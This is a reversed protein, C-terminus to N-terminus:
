VGQDSGDIWETPVAYYDITGTKRPVEVVYRDSVWNTDQAKIRSKPVGFPICDSLKKDKCVIAIVKGTKVKLVGSAQSTWTIVDGINKM